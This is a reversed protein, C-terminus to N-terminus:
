PSWGKEKFHWSIELVGVSLPEFKTFLSPSLDLDESGCGPCSDRTKGYAKKGNKTDVIEVWQNCNGGNAADYRSKAIAVIPDSDKDIYGCNGLGVNFWTGRGVHTVQAARTEVDVLTINASDSVGAAPLSVAVFASAFVTILFISTRLM